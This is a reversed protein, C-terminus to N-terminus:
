RWHFFSTNRNSSSAMQELYSNLILFVKDSSDIICHEEMFTM